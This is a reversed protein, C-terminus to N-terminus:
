FKINKNVWVLLNDKDPKGYMDNLYNTIEEMLQEKTKNAAKLDTVLAQVEAALESDIPFVPHFSCIIDSVETEANYYIFKFDSVKANDVLKGDVTYIEERNIKLSDGEFSLMKDIREAEGELKYNVIFFNNTNMPFSKANIKLKIEGALVLYNDRGFHNELDIRTVMEGARTGTTKKSLKFYAAVQGEVLATVSASGASKEDYLAALGTANSFVAAVANSPAFSIKDTPKITVTSGQALATNNVKVTGKVKLVKYQQANISTFFVLFAIVLIFKLQKM